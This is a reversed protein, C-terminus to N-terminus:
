TRRSLVYSAWERVIDSGVAAADRLADLTDPTGIRGLAWIYKKALQRYEDWDPTWWIAEELFPVSRPDRIEDLADVIDDNNVERLQRHLVSCLTPVYRTHPHRFAISVYQEFRGWDEAEASSQLGEAICGEMGTLSEVFAQRDPVSHLGRPSSIIEHLEACRDTSM